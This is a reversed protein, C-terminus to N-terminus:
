TGAYAPIYTLGKVTLFTRSGDRTITGTATSEEGVLILTITENAYVARSVTTFPVTCYMAAAWPRFVGLLIDIRATGNPRAVRAIARFRGTSGATFGASLGLGGSLEIAMDRNVVIKGNTDLTFYGNQDAAVHHSVDTDFLATQENTGNLSTNAAIPFSRFNRDLVYANEEMLRYGPAIYLTNATSPYGGFGFSNMNKKWTMFVKVTPVVGRQVSSNGVSDTIKLYVIYSNLPNTTNKHFIYVPYTTQTTPDTYSSTEYTISEQFTSTPSLTVTMSYPYGGLTTYTPTYTVAAYSSEAEPDPQARTLNWRGVEMATIAPFAYATVTYTGTITFSKGRSDTAKITATNSGATTLTGTNYSQAQVTSGNATITLTVSSGYYGSITKSPAITASSHNQLLLNNWANNKTVSVTANVQSKWVSGYDRATITVNKTEQGIVTGNNLTSFTVSVTGTNSKPMAPLWTGETPTWRITTSGAAANLTVSASGMTFVARHTYTSAAPTITITISNSGNVEVTTSSLSWGSMPQLYEIHLVINSFTVYSKQDLNTRKCAMGFRVTGSQGSVPNITLTHSGNGLGGQSHGDDDYAYGVAYHCTLDFSVWCNGIGANTPLTWEILRADYGSYMTTSDLTNTVRLDLATFTAESYASM